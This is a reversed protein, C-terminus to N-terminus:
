GWKKKSTSSFFIDRVPFNEHFYCCYHPYKQFKKSMKTHTKKLGNCLCALLLPFIDKPATGRHRTEKRWEALIGKWVRKLPGFVAVDLPQLLHTANPLLSIFKINHEECARLVEESFHSALNDGILVKEGALLTAHPLFIEFFWREFTRQDFWGSKSNDYIAGPPGNLTWNRYLNLAKYVVCPPLFTGDAAGCFMISTASKSHEMKREVRRLGRSVIVTKSGPDDTVNTEDYNFIRDASIDDGVTEVLNAFFEKITQRTIEARVSKVNDAIRKTLKNRKMFSQVWNKGPWNDKFRSQVGKKNLYSQVLVKLQFADIPFKWATLHMILTVLISEEEVTLVSKRGPTGMEHNPKTKKTSAHNWLTGYPIGFEKSVENMNRGKKCEAVAAALVDKSYNTQYARSGPKRKYKSPM